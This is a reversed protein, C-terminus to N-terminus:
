SVRPVSSDAASQAPASQTLAAATDRDGWRQALQALRQADEAARPRFAPDLALRERVSRLAEGERDARLLLSVREQAVRNSFLPSQWAASQQYLWHLESLPDAHHEIRELVLKWAQDRANARWAGYVLDLWRQRQTQLDQAATDLERPIILAIHEGVRERNAYVAGGVVALVALWCYLALSIRLPRPMGPIRGPVVTTLAVIALTCATVWLQDSGLARAMRACSRPNLSHALHGTWGQVALVTPLCALMLVGLLAAGIRGIFYQGAGGAFFLVIVLILPLLFRFEGLSALIMEVSLVPAEYHGVVVEDLLVFSYKFYCSMLIFLPAIAFLGEKSLITVVVGLFLLTLAGAPQLPLWLLAGYYRWRPGADRLTALNRAPM